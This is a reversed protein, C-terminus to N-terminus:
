YGRTNPIGRDGRIPFSAILTCTYTNLLRPFAGNRLDSRWPIHDSANAKGNTIHEQMAERGYPVGFIDEM